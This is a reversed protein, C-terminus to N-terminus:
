AIAKGGRGSLLHLFWFLVDVLAMGAWLCHGHGARHMSTGGGEREQALSCGLAHNNKGPSLVGELESGMWRGALERRGTVLLVGLLAHAEQGWDEGGRGLCLKGGDSVVVTRM